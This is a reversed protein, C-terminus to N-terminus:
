NGIKPVSPLKGDQVDKVIQAAIANAMPSVDNGTPDTLAVKDPVFIPVRKGMADMAIIALRGEDTEGGFRLYRGKAKMAIEDLDNLQGAIMEVGAEFRAEGDRGLLKRVRDVWKTKSSEDAVSRVNPVGCSEGAGIDDRGVVGKENELRSVGGRKQAKGGSVSDGCGGKRSVSRSGALTDKYGHTDM